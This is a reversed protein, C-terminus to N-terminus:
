NNTCFWGETPEHVAVSVQYNGYGDDPVIFDYFASYIKRNGQFDFSLGYGEGEKVRAGGKLVTFYIKDINKSRDTVGKGIFTLKDGPKIVQGNYSKGNIKVITGQYCATGVPPITPTPCSPAKALVSACQAPEICTDQSTNWKKCYNVDVQISGDCKYDVEFEKSGALSVWTKKDYGGKGMLWYSNIFSPGRPDCYSGNYGGCVYAAAKIYKENGSINVRYKGNIFNGQLNVQCGTSKPTPTPTPQNCRYAKITFAVGGEWPTKEDPLYCGGDESKVTSADIQVASCDLNVNELGSGDSKASLEIKQGPGLNYPNRKVYENCQYGEDPPIKGTYDCKNWQVWVQVMRDKKNEIVITDSDYKKEMGGKPYCVVKGETPPMTPAPYAKITFALGGSWKQGDPRYCGGADGNPDTPDTNADIQVVKGTLDMNELGSGGSQPSFTLRSKPGIIYPNRKVYENCQYGEKPPNNPDYTCLNWQVWIKVNRNLNNEVILKNSDYKKEIGGEPYCVVKDTVNVPYAQPKKFWTKKAFILGLPVILIIVGVVLSLWVTKNKSEREPLVNSGKEKNRARGQMFGQTSQPNDELGMNQPQANDQNM